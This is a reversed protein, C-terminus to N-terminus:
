NRRTLVATGSALGMSTGLDTASWVVELSSNSILRIQVEGKAGGRGTWPFRGSMGSVTGEFRFDVEPSIGPDSVKFRARYQGRLHGNVESIVAEIFEPPLLTKNHSNDPARRYTWNGTWRPLALPLVPGLGPVSMEKPASPNVTPPAPVIVRAVEQPDSPPPEFRRAGPSAALQKMLRQRDANAAALQARLSAIETDRKKDPSAAPVVTAAAPHLAAPPDVAPMSSDRTTLWIIFAACVVTAGLWVLTGSNAQLLREASPLSHIIIATPREPEALEQDYRRRREPNSLIEYLHNIRKMQVEASEKLVPNTQADPHLLRAANRYADRITDPRADSPVGLEEYLTM